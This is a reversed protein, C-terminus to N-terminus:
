GPEPSSGSTNKRSNLGQFGPWTSLRLAALDELLIAIRRSMRCMGVHLIRKKELLDLGRECQPFISKGGDLNIAWSPIKRQGLTRVPQAAFFRHLLEDIGSEAAAAAGAEGRSHIATRSVPRASYNARSSPPIIPADDLAVRVADDFGQLRRSTM